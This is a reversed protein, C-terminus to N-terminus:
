DDEVSVNHSEKFELEARKPDENYLRLGSGLSFMTKM